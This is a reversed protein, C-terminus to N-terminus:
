HGRRPLPSFGEGQPSSKLLSATGHLVVALGGMGYVIQFIMQNPDGLVALRNEKSVHGATQPFKDPLYALGQLNLDDFAVDGFIM